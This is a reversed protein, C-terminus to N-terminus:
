NREGKLQKQKIYRSDSIFVDVKLIRIDEQHVPGKIMLYNDILITVGAKMIKKKKTTSPNSILAEHKSPLHKAVQAM